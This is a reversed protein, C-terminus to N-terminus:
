GRHHGSMSLPRNGPVDDRSEVQRWGAKGDAKVLYMARDARCLLEDTTVAEAHSASAVGISISLQVPEGDVLVPAFLASVLRQAVAGPDPSGELLIAFEDGGLRAVTDQERLEAVLRAAAQVLVADGAAHGWRDNVLKFDDLDCFLVTTVGEGRRNLTLAHTVRDHFLARNALGTLSDHLAQHRARDRQTHLARLLARNDVLMAFQRGLVLLVLAGAFFIETRTFTGHGDLRGALASAAVLVSLYPLLLGGWAPLNPTAQDGEDLATLPQRLSGAPHAVVAAVTMLLFGSVWGLDFLTGSAYTGATTSIVYGVDAVAFSGLGAVLPLLVRLRVREAGAVRLLVMTMLMVDGVPYAATVLLAHIEAAGSAWIDRLTTVWVVVLLSTAIVLGDLVSRVVAARTMAQRPLRVMALAALVPFALFGIDAVSPVPVESGLVLEYWAYVAQGSAWAGIGLGLLMWSRRQRLDGQRRSSDFCVLAGLLSTLLQMLNSVTGAQAQAVAGPVLEQTLLFAGFSVAIVAAAAVVVRQM